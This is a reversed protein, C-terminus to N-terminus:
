FPTDDLPMIGIDMAQVDTVERDERWDILDLGEFRDQEATRGAGVVRIRVGHTATLGRLVGLLPRVNPWTTPSGIWGIVLPGVTRSRPKYRDTDVVTPLVISNRCYRAAYGRLYDNGCCCGDAASLLPVLKNSLMRRVLGRKSADYKHFIADDYDVLLPRGANM